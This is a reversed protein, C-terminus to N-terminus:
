AQRGAAVTQFDRRRPDAIALVVACLSAPKADQLARGVAKLTSATTLVDDVITVRKGRISKADVLGFANRLNAARDAGSRIGTQAPTNKLRVVGGARRIGCQRALRDALTQSQNYGRGIQRSWHLPVALLVDTQELIGRIRDEWLMRDALIEAIPWRHRYKMQHIM